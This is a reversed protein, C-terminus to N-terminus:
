KAAYSNAAELSSFFAVYAIDISTNADTKNGGSMNIFDFRFHGLTKGNFKETGIKQNLDYVFTVWEGDTAFGEININGGGATHDVTNLYTQIYFNKSTTRFRVVMYRAAETDTTLLYAYSEEIGDTPNITVYSGDPSVTASEVNKM